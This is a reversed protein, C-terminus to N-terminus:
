VQIELMTTWLMEVLGDQCRNELTYYKMKTRRHFCFKADHFNWVFFMEEFSLLNIKLM